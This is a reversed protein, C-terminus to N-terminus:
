ADEEADRDAGPEPETLPPTTAEAGEAPTLENPDGATVTTTRAQEIAAVKADLKTRAPFTLGLERAATDADAHTHISGAEEEAEVIAQDRAEDESLAHNERLPPASGEEVDVVELPAGSEDLAVQAADEGDFGFHSLEVPEGVIFAGPFAGGFTFPGDGTYGAERAKEETLVLAPVPM